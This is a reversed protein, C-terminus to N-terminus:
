GTPRRESSRAPPCADQLIARIDAPLTGHGSASETIAVAVERVKRHTHSSMHALLEFAVQDSCSTLLMLIGKAQEIAARSAMATRLQTVETELHHVRDDDTAQRGETVDACVGHVATVAGSADLQPELLLVVTRAPEGPRVMRVELAGPRGTCAAAVAHATRAQDAPHQGALLLQLCPEASGEPVGHLQYTEPSWWWSEARPDCRFRGAVPAPAPTPPAAPVALATDAVHIPRPLTRRRQIVPSSM